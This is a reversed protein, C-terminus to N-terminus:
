SEDERVDWMEGCAPCKDRVDWGDPIEKGCNDCGHCEPSRWGNMTLLHILEEAMARYQKKACSCLDSYPEISIQLQNEEKKRSIEYFLEAIKEKM